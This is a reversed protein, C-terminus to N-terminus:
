HPPRKILAEQLHRLSAGDQGKTPSFHAASHKHSGMERILPVVKGGELGQAWEGLGPITSTQVGHQCKLPLSCGRPHRASSKPYFLQFSPYHILPSNHSMHGLLFFWKVRM